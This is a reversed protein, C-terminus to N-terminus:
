RGGAGGKVGQEGFDVQVSIRRQQTGRGHQGIKSGIPQTSCVRALIFREEKVICADPM